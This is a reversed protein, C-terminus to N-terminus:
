HVAETCVFYEPQKYPNNKMFYAPLSAARKTKGRTIWVPSHETM